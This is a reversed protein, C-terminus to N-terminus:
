DEAIFCAVLVGSYGSVAVSSPAGTTLIDIKNGGWFDTGLRWSCAVGGYDTWVRGATAANSAETFGTRQKFLELPFGQVPMTNPTPYSYNVMVQTGSLLWYKTSGSTYSNFTLALNNIEASCKSEYSSLATSTESWTALSPDVYKRVLYVGEKGIGAPAQSGHGYHAVLWPNNKGDYVDPIETGVPFADKDGADLAAKLGSLTPNSPDYPMDYKATLEISSTVPTAFDYDKGNLQWALFAYEGRTPNTTPPTATSGSLVYQPPIEPTGGNVNFSVLYKFKAPVFCAPLVAYTNSVDNGASVNGSTGVYCVRPSLGISRLWVNYAVNNSDKLVRGTNAAGNMASLGTKNKWYDWFFGEGNNYTGGIEIGSMLFWKSLVNVMNSDIYYPISIDSIMQKTSESCANLYTTDLMNKIQSTRYDYSSGFVQSTPAVYKRVLIVGEAGDYSTNNSNDLFQAVILPNNQGNWTDYIETGVPFLTKIDGSDVAEKFSDLNNSNYFNRYFGANNVNPFRVLFDSAYTGGVAVGEVYSPSTSFYNPMFNADSIYRPPCNIIIKGVFNETYVMFNMAVSTISSPFIITSSITPKNENHTNDYMFYSGITQLGEHFGGVHSLSTWATLRMAYNPINVVKTGFEISTIDAVNVQAGDVTATTVSTLLANLEAESQVILSTGDSLTIRAWDGYYSLAPQGGCFWQAQLKTYQTIPTNDFDFM